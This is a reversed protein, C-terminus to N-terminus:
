RAIVAEYTGALQKAITPFSFSQKAWAFGKLAMEERSAGPLSALRGFAEALGAVTNTARIAAGAEMFETALSINETIVVPTGVAIAEFLVYGFSEISSNVVLADAAALGESKSEGGVWGAFIVREAVGLEAACRRLMSEYEAEGKGLILLRAKALEPLATAEAFAGITMEVRKVPHLRGLFAFTLVEDPVGFRGRGAARLSGRDPMAAPLAVPLPVLFRREAPCTDPFRSDNLEDRTMAIFGNARRLTRGLGLSLCVRKKLRKYDMAWSLLMGHSQWVVPVGARWAADAAVRLDPCWLGHIHLVDFQRALLDNAILRGLSGGRVLRGRDEALKFAGPARQIRECVPDTEPPRLFYATPTMRDPCTAIADLISLFATTTGGAHADASEILQAVRIMTLVDLFLAGALTTSCERYIPQFRSPDRASLSM